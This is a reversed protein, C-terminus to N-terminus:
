DFFLNKETFVVGVSRSPRILSNVHRFYMCLLLQLSWGATYFNLDCLGIYVFLYTQMTNATGAASGVEELDPLEFLVFAFDQFLIQGRILSLNPFLNALSRIGFVRYVMFYGNIETLDPFSYREFDEPRSKEMLLISLSGVIVTCGNLKDFESIDSRIDVEGCIKAEACSCCCLLLVLVIPLLVVLVIRPRPRPRMLLLMEEAASLM